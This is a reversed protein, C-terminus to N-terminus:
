TELWATAWSTAWSVHSPTRFPRSRNSSREDSLVQIKRIRALMAFVRPM